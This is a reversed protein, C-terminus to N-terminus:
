QLRRYPFRQLILRVISVLRNGLKAINKAFDQILATCRQCIQSFTLTWGTPCLIFSVPLEAALARHRQFDFTKGAALTHRDPIFDAATTTRLLRRQNGAPFLLQLLSLMLSFSKQLFPLITLGCLNRLFKLVFGIRTKLMQLFPSPFKGFVYFTLLLLLLLPGSDQVLFGLSMLCGM